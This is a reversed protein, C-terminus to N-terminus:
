SVAIYLCTEGYNLQTLAFLLCRLSRRIRKPGARESKGQKAEDVGGWINLLRGLIPAIRHRTTDEIQNNKEEYSEQITIAM